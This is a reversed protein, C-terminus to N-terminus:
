DEAPWGLVVAHNPNDIVRPDNLVPDARVTLGQSLFVGASVDGRGKLPKGRVEAINRGVSWLEDESADRHRTVSLEAHPRPVFADPKITGDSSRIDSSRYIFRAVVEDATVDPVDSPDIM